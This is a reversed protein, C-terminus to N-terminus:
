TARESVVVDGSPYRQHVSRGYTPHRVSVLPIYLARRPDCNRDLGHMLAWGFQRVAYHKGCQVEDLM